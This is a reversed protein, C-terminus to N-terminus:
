RTPTRRRRSPKRMPSIEILISKHGEALAAGLAVFAQPRQVQIRHTKTDFRSPEPIDGLGTRQLCEERTEGHHQYLCVKDGTNVIRGGRGLEVFKCRSGFGCPHLILDEISHAFPCGPRRKCRGPLSRCLRTNARCPKCLPQSSADTSAMTPEGIPPFEGLNNYQVFEMDGSSMTYKEDSSFMTAKRFMTGYDSILRSFLLM